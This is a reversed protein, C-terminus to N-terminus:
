SPETIEINGCGAVDKTLILNKSSTIFGTLTILEDPLTTSFIFGSESFTILM